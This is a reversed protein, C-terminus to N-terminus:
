GCGIEIEFCMFKRLDVCKIVRFKNYLISIKNSKLYPQTVDIALEFVSFKSFM